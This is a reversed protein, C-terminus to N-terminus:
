INRIAAELKEYMDEEFETPEYTLEEKKPDKKYVGPPNNVYFQKAFLIRKKPFCFKFPLCCCCWGKQCWLPIALCIYILFWIKIILWIKQLTKKIIPKDKQQEYNYMLCDMLTINFKKSEETCNKFDVLKQLAKMTHEELKEEETINLTENFKKIQEEYEKKFQDYDYAEEGPETSDADKDEEFM